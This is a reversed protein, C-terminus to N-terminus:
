KSLVIVFVLIALLVGFVSLLLPLSSKPKDTRPLDVKPQPTIPSLLSDRTLETLHKFAYSEIEPTLTVEAQVLRSPVVVKTTYGHLMFGQVVSMVFDKNVAIIQRGEGLSYTRSLVNEFPVTDLFQLTESDVKDQEVSVFQHEFCLDPALLLVINTNTYTRSKVWDTILTYLGDKNIVEMNSVLTPPLPITQPANLDQGIIQLSNGSLLITLWSKQGLM